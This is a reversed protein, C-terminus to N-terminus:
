RNSGKKQKELCEKCVVRNDAEARTDAAFDFVPQRMAEKAESEPVVKGCWDCILENKNEM